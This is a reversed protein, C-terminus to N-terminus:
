MRFKKARQSIGLGIKFQKMDDENIIRFGNFKSYYIAPTEGAKKIKRVEDWAGQADPYGGHGVLRELQEETLWYWQKAEKSV